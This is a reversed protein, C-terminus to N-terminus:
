DLYRLIRNFYCYYQVLFAGFTVLVLVYMTVYPTIANFGAFCASFAVNQLAFVVDPKMGHMLQTYGAIKGAAVIALVTNYSIALGSVVAVVYLVWEGAVLIPTQTTNQTQFSDGPFVALLIFIWVFHLWTILHLIMQYGFKQTLGYFSANAVINFIGSLFGIVPIVSVDNYTNSSATVLNLTYSFVIGTVAQTILLDQVVPEKMFSIFRVRFSRRDTLEISAFSDVLRSNNSISDVSVPQVTIRRIFLIGVVGALVTVGVCTGYIRVRASDDLTATDHLFVFNIVSGIIGSLNSALLFYSLNREINERRSISTVYDQNVVQLVGDALGTVIVGTIVAYEKLLIMGVYMGVHLLTSCVIVTKYGCYQRLVPVCLGAPISVIIFLSSTLYGVKASIGSDELTSNLVSLAPNLATLVLLFM